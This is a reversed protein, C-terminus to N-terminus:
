IQGSKAYYGKEHLLVQFKEFIKSLIGHKIFKERYHWLINADPVKDRLALGLFKMFSLRDNVQYEVQDDSLNYLSQLILLNIILIVDYSPRGDLLKEKKLKSDIM